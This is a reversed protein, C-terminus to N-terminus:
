ARELVFEATEETLQGEEPEGDGIGPEGGNEEGIDTDSDFRRLMGPGTRFFVPPKAALSPYHHRNADNSTLGRIHATITNYKIKPYKEGFWAVVEHVTFPPILAEAADRMLEFVPRSYIV